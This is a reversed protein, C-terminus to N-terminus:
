KKYQASSVGDSQFDDITMVRIFQEPVSFADFVERAIEYIKDELHFYIGVGNDALDTNHILSLAVWVAGKTHIERVRREDYETCGSDVPSHFLPITVAVDSATIEYDPFEMVPLKAIHPKRKEIM